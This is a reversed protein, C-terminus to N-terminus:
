FFNSGVFSILSTAHYLPNSLANLAAKVDMLFSTPESEPLEIESIFKESVAVGKWSPFCAYIRVRNKM